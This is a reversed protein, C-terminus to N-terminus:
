PPLKLADRATNTCAHVCIHIYACLKQQIWVMDM